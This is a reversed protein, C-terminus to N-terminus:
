RRHHIVDEVLRGAGSRNPLAVVGRNRHHGLRTSCPPPPRSNLSYLRRNSLNRRSEASASVASHVSATNVPTIMSPSIGAASGVGVTGDNGRITPNTCPAAILPEIGLGSPSYGSAEPSKRPCPTAFM